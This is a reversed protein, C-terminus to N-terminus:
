SQRGEIRSLWAEVDALDSFSATLAWKVCVFLPKEADDTIAHLEVGAMAARAKANALRKELAAGSM